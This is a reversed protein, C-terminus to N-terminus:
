PTFYFPDPLKFTREACGGALDSDQDGLNAIIVRGEAALRQRQAAKFQAATETSKDSEFILAAYEGCGIARLNRETAARERERRDTLFIVDVGLRRAVRYVERVPEIAPARAEAVWAEWVVPVYAFDERVLGAWNSWLTEDLDFVVALREDAVRRAARQAIWTRAEAAVPTIERLYQGSEVYHRLEAKHADPNAARPSATACGALLALLGVLPLTLRHPV